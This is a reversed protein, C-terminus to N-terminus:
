LKIIESNLDYEGIFTYDLPHFNIELYKKVKERDASVVVAKEEGYYTVVYGVYIKM